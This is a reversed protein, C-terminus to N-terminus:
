ASIGRSHLARLVRPAWGLLFKDDTLVDMVISTLLDDSTPGGFHQLQLRRLYDAMSPVPDSPENIAESWAEDFESFQVLSPPNYILSASVGGRHNVYKRAFEYREADRMSAAVQLLWLALGFSAEMPAQQLHDLLPRYLDAVYRGANPVSSLLAALLALFAPAIGLLFDDYDRSLGFHPGIRTLGSSNKQWHQLSNLYDCKDPRHVALLGIHLPQNWWYGIHSDYNSSAPTDLDSAGLEEVLRLYHERFHPISRGLECYRILFRADFGEAEAHKLVVDLEVDHWSDGNLASALREIDLQRSLRRHHSLVDTVLLTSDRQDLSYTRYHHSGFQFRLTELRSTEGGSSLFLHFFFLPKQFRENPQGFVKVANNAASNTARSEVEFIMLPFDQGEERFWAIDIAPPRTRRVVVPVEEKVTYGLASGLEALGKILNRGDRLKHKPM